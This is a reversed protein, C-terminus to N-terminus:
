KESSIDLIQDKAIILGACLFFLVCGIYWFTQGDRVALGIAIGGGFMMIGATIYQVIENRSILGAGFVLGLAILFTGVQLINEQNENFAILVFLALVVALVVFAGVQKPSAGSSPPPPVYDPEYSM